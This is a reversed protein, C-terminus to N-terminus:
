KWEDEEGDIGGNQREYAIVALSCVLLAGMFIGALFTLIM